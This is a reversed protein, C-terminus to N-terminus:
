HGYRKSRLLFAESGGEVVREIGSKVEDVTGSEVLRGTARTGELVFVRDTEGLVLINPSHTAFIIQRSTKVALLTPVLVDFIFANDLQDEPQDIVLPAASQILLILLIAMCRQGSSLETLPIPTGDVRLRLAPVDRLRVVDLRGVKGSARLADVVRQARDAKNTKAEDIAQIATTDNARVLAALDDPRINEAIGKVLESRINAGKLMEGLLALYEGPDGGGVVTVELRGDLTRGIEEGV